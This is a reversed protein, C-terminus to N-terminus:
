KLKEIRKKKKKKNRELDILNIGSPTNSSRNAAFSFFDGSPSSATIGGALSRSSPSPSFKSFGASGNDRFSFSKKSNEKSKSRSGDSLRKTGGSNKTQAGKIEASSKSGSCDRRVGVIDNKASEESAYTKVKNEGIKKAKKGCRLCHSVIVNKLKASPHLEGEINEGCGKRYRNLGGKLSRKRIRSRCTVSPIQIACCWQCIRESMVFEPLNDIGHEKVLDVFSRSMHHSLEMSTLAAQHMGKWLYQLELSVAPSLDKGFSSHLIAPIEEYLGDM